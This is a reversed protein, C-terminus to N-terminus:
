LEMDCITGKVKNKRDYWYVWLFPAKQKKPYYMSKSFVSFKMVPMYHGGKKGSYWYQPPLAKQPQCFINWDPQFLFGTLQGIHWM